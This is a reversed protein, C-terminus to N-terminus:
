VSMGVNFGVLFISYARSFQEQPVLKAILGAAAPRDVTSLFGAALSLLGILYVNTVVAFLLATLVAVPQALIIARRAGIMDAVVGGALGAVVVGAGFLGVIIPTTHTDSLESQQLYLILFAPALIGVRSLTHGLWLLWFAKPLGMPEYGM